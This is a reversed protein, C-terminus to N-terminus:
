NSEADKDSSRSRFLAHLEDWWRDQEDEDAEVLKTLVDLNEELRGKADKDSGMALFSSSGLIYSNEVVLKVLSKFYDSIQEIEERIERAAQVDRKISAKWVTIESVTEPGVLILIFIILWVVWTTSFAIFALINFLYLISLVASITIFVAWIYKKDMNIGETRNDHRM